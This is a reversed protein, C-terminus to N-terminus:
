LFNKLNFPLKFRGNFVDRTEATGLMKGKSIDVKMVYDSKHINSSTVTSM